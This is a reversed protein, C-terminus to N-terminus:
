RSVIARAVFVAGVVVLIGLPIWSSTLAAAIALGMCVLAFGLYRGRRPPRRAQPPALDEPM